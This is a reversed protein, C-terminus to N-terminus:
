RKQRRGSSIDPSNRIPGPGIGEGATIASIRDRWRSLHWILWATSNTDPTPQFYLQEETLGDAAQKIWRYPAEVLAIMFQNLDVTNDNVTNDTM